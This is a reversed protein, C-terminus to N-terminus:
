LPSWKRGGLSRWKKPRGTIAVTVAVTENGDTIFVSGTPVVMGTPYFTAENSRSFTIGDAPPAEYPASPKGKVDPSIGFRIGEPLSAFYEGDIAYTGTEPYFRIVSERANRRATWRAQRIDADVQYLATNLRVRQVHSNLLLLGIIVLISFIGMAMILEMLTLGATRKMLM